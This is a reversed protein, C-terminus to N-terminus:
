IQNFVYLPKTSLNKDRFNGSYVRLVLTRFWQEFIITMKELVTSLM